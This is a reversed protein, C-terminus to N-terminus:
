YVPAHPRVHAHLKVEQELLQLLAQLVMSQLLAQYRAQDRTIDGLRRKAEELVTAIHDEGAKLVKLRAQNLMNSSQSCPPFACNLAGGICVEHKGSQNAEYRLWLDNALPEEALASSLALATARKVDDGFTM